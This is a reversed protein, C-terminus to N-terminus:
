TCIIKPTSYYSYAVANAHDGIVARNIVIDGVELAIHDHCVSGDGTSLTSLAM